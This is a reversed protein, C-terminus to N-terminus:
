ILPLLIDEFEGWDNLDVDFGSSGQKSEEDSIKLGTVTIIGGHPQEAVQDTVDFDFSKIVGNKLCVELNLSYRDGARTYNGNPYDPIGFSNVVAQAGYEVITCDYLITAIDSSTQGSNLYVSEAMGALAGRALAVHQLGYDFEYQIVYTFVLPHMVVDMERAVVDKEPTYNEIYNGYLMDPASVTKENKTGSYSNGFYTSRTKTRTTAKATAFSDTNDFVIYETDNNYFLLSYTGETFSIIGGAAPMNKMEQKDNEGFSLVRLGEPIAPCLNEYSFTLNEPWASKWDPSDGYTYQWQQEYSANVTVHYKLAHPEHDYCLEKHDCSILSAVLLACVFINVLGKM